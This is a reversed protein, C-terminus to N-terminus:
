KEFQEISQRPIYFTSREAPSKIESPDYQKKLEELGDITSKHHEDIQKLSLKSVDKNLLNEYKKTGGANPLFKVSSRHFGNGTITQSKKLFHSLNNRLQSPQLISAHRSCSRHLDDPFKSNSTCSGPSDPNSNVSSVSSLSDADRM